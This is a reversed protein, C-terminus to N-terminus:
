PRRLAMGVNRLRVSWSSCWQSNNLTIVDYYYLEGLIEIELCGVRHLVLQKVQYIFTNKFNETIERFGVVDGAPTQSGYQSACFPHFLRASFQDEAGQPLVDVGDELNGSEVLYEPDEVCLFFPQGTKFLCERCCIKAPYSM